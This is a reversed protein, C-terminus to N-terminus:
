EMPTDNRAPLPPSYIVIAELPESGVSIVHHNLQPPIRVISGAHCRVPPDNGLTVDAEGKVLYIVQHESDHHHPEGEGGPQVTVRVMEFAGCFRRDALHVNVTGAHGPPTYRPLEEAHEILKYDM